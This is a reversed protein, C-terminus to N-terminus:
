PLKDKGYARQLAGWARVLKSFSDLYGQMTERESQQAVIVNALGTKGYQYSKQALNVM